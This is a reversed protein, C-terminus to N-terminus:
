KRRSRYSSLSKYYNKNARDYLKDSNDFDFKTVIKKDRCPSISINQIVRYGRSTYGKDAREYGGLFRMHSAWRKDTFNNYQNESFLNKTESTKKWNRGVREFEQRIVKITKYDSFNKIKSM